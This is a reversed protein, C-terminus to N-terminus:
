AFMVIFLKLVDEEGGFLFGSGSATLGWKEWGVQLGGLGLLCPLRSEAEVYKGIRSMQPFIHDKMIPKRWKTDHKWSEGVNYCIYTGWEKKNGFLIGNCPYM